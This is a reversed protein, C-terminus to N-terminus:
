RAYVGVDGSSTEIDIDAGGSGCIYTNGDKKLAFDSEFDGSATSINATFDSEEPLVLTVGGSVAHLRCEAPVAELECLVAGSNAKVELSDVSAAKVTIRGSASEFYARDASGLDADIKGSATDIRVEGAKDKQTLQINGSASNLEVTNAEGSININGSATSVSLTGATLRDADIEASAARITVNEFALTEPLTLTLDKHFSGFTRVGAGSAAFRVRLTSGDVWWRVRMDEPISEEDWESLLVTDESHSVLSISGSLWDIEISEIKDTIETNGVSYKDSNAYTVSGSYSCGSLGCLASLSIAALVAFVLVKKM